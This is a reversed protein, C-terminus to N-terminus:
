KVSKATMELTFAGESKAGFGDVVVYYTGPELERDITKNYYTSCVIENRTPDACDQRLSMIANYFSNKLTLNVKSRDKLTFQYVKDGSNQQWVNGGCKESAFRDTAAVTTDTVPTGSVLKTAAKCAAAAPALERLKASVKTRGFDDPGKGKVVLFYNGPDLTTDVGKSVSAPECLVEGKTEGCAKQVAFVHHGEDEQTSLFLRSKAKVEIKYAVDAASDAACSAKMDAKAQFTDLTFQNGLPLPKADKCTDGEATGSGTADSREINFDISASHSADTTETIATYAGADMLGTWSLGDIHWDKSCAIETNPDECRKRVSISSEGGTSSKMGLRVRSRGKLDFKFLAESGDSMGCSSRFNNGEGSVFETTKSGVTALHAGSCVSELSPADELRTKLEFDGKDGQGDYGSIVVGYDGTDVIADLHSKTTLGESDDSCDVEYGSDCLYGDSAARYLSMVADFKASLDLVLKHRGEVHVRYVVSAGEGAACTAHPAYGKGVTTGKVSSGAALDGASSCPDGGANYGPEDCDEGVCGNDPDITPGGTKGGGTKDGSVYPQAIFSGTGGTSKIVLNYTAAEAVCHKVSTQGEQKKVEGVPKGAPDNLAVDVGKLGDGAFTVIQYCGEKLALPVKADGGEGVMGQAPSGSATYGVSEYISKASAMRAALDPGRSACGQAVVFPASLFLATLLVRRVSRM